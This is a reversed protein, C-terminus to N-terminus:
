SEVPVVARVLTGEDDTIIELEGGFAKVRERMGRLGVGAAGALKEQPIGKGEDRIELRLRGNSNSLAIAATASESHRHINTLSEQVVRFVMTELETSFRLEEPMSLSVQIHSREQFGDIYWRLGARLGVEDLLPPHLLYSTTRLENSVAQAIKENEELSRCLGADLKEAKNRMRGLNMILAAMSQGTSDHLERAIRRREGDQLQLLRGSLGRVEREAREQRAIRDELEKTRQHVREELANNAVRLEYDHRDREAVAVSVLLSTLAAVGLFVQIILLRDNSLAVGHVAQLTSAIAVAAFGLMAFAAERPRLEFATWVVFPLCVFKLSFGEGNVFFSDGFVLVATMLLSAAAVVQVVRSRRDRLGTQRSSWLLLCPTVLIAGTMDGLWWTMWVPTPDLGKAIGTAFLTATGASAGITTAFACAFIVFRFIDEANEFAKRGNAFRAVLFAGALAEFTNGTAIGLSSVVTGATALNVFFSGIFVGPWMRYGLLLIAALAIGTGPWVATASPHVIALRLGLKCAVFYFLALVTTQLLPNASFSNASNPRTEPM